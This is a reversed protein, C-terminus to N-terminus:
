QVRRLVTDLCGLFSIVHKAVFRRHCVPSCTATPACISNKIYRLFPDGVYNTGNLVLGYQSVDYTGDDWNRVTSSPIDSYYCTELNTDTLMPEEGKEMKGYITLSYWPRHYCNKALTGETM